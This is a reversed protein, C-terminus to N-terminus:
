LIHPGYICLSYIALSKRNLVSPLLMLLSGFAIDGATPPHPGHPKVGAGGSPSLAM